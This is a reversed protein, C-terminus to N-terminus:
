HLYEELYSLDTTPTYSTRLRQNYKARVFILKYVEEPGSADLEKM